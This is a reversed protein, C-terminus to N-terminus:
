SPDAEQCAVGLSTADLSRGRLQRVTGDDLQSVLEPAYERAPEASLGKLRYFQGEHDLWDQTWAENHIDVVEHSRRYRRASDEVEGPFDSSVINVTLRGQLMHDLPAVTRAQMAPQLEGCLLAALLDIRDTQPALAAAFTLTDQGVQYSL